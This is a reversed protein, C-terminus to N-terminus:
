VHMARVKSRSLSDKSFFEVLFFDKNVCLTSLHLLGRKEDGRRSIRGKNLFM